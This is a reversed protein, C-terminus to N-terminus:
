DIFSVIEDLEKRKKERPKDHVGFGLSIVLRIRKSKPINIVQKIKDEHFLGLMCSAIGLETAQLCIHTAVIGIDTKTYDQSKFENFVKLPITKKEEIIVIFAGAKQNFSQTQNAIDQIKKPNNTVYFFWPQANTASPALRATELIKVLDKKAVLDGTYHRCSERTKVLDIFNKM